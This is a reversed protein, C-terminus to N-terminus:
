EGVGTCKLNCTHTHTHTHIKLRCIYTGRSRQAQFQLVKIAIANNTKNCDSDRYQNHLICMCIYTYTNFYNNYCLTILLFHRQVSLFLCLARSYVIVPFRTLTTNPSQVYIQLYMCLHTCIYTCTNLIQRYTIQLNIIWNYKCAAIQAFVFIVM